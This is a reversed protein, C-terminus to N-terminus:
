ATKPVCTVYVRLVRNAGTNNHGTARWGTISNVGATAPLPMSAAIQADGSTPVDSDVFLWSAGGGIGKEGPACFVSVSTSNGTAIPDGQNIVTRVTNSLFSTQDRGNLAQADRAVEATRATEATRALEANRAFDATGATRATEATKAADALKALEAFQSLKAAPVLGLKAENIQVGTLANPKIRNGPVSNKKLASGSIAASAQAASGALGVLLTVSAVAVAQAPRVATISRM